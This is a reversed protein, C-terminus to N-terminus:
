LSGKKDTFAPPNEVTPTQRRKTAPADQERLRRSSAAAVLGGIVLLILTSPEPVVSFQSNHNVVAWVQHHAVDVGYSGLFNGVNADTISNAAAFADWSSQVNQFVDGPLGTGFNGMTANQWLGNPQNLGTNLWALDILGSSALSTESGNLALTNYSMQLAFPDTQVHNGASSSMGTLNLIDSVLRPTDKSSRLRWQMAVDYFTAGNDEGTRIDASSGLVPSFGSIATTGLGSYSASRQVRRIISATTFGTDAAVYVANSGNKALSGTVQLTGGNITTTGGYTNTAPLVLSLRAGLTLDTTGIPSDNLSNAVTLQGDGGLFRYTTGYPVLQGSYKIAGTAGLGVNPLNAGSVQSLDLNNSSNTSLEVKGASDNTIHSLFSQDIPADIAVAGSNVLRVNATGSPISANSAFTLNGDVTTGGSYTNLGSLTVGAAKVVISGNEGSITGAFLTTLGNITDGSITLQTPTGSPNLNVSTGGIGALSGIQQSTGINVIAGTGRLNLASRVGLSTANNSNLITGAGVNLAAGTILNSAAYDLTVIGGNFVNQDQGGSLPGLFLSAQGSGNNAVNFVAGNLTVTSGVGTGLALSYPANTLDRPGNISLAGQLTFNADDTASTIGSLDIAGNSSLNAVHLPNNGIADRTRLQLSGGTGLSVTGTGVVRNTPLAPDLIVNSTVSTPGGYTNNGTLRVTGSGVITIGATGNTGNALLNGTLDVEGGAASSVKLTKGVNTTGGLTINGSFTTVGASNQAGLTLAGTDLDNAVIPNALMVGPSNSLLLNPNSSGTAGLTIAATGAPGSMIVGGSQTTSSALLLTGAAVTTGGSYTNAGSLILSGTGTKNLSANGALPASITATQNNVQVLANGSSAALTLSNNSGGNNDLTWNNSPTTDGFLISGISRVSDLHVTNDATINLTSFDAIGDTGDAIAGGSWNAPNSWLGGTTADNWTGNTAASAITTSLAILLAVALRGRSLPWLVPSPAMLSPFEIMPSRQSEFSHNHIQRDRIRAPWDKLTAIPRRSQLRAPAIRAVYRSSQM